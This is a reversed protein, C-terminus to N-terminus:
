VHVQGASQVSLMRVLLEPLIEVATFHSANPAVETIAGPINDALWYTHQVPSFTDDFGHWLLVKCRISGVDFGWGAPDRFARVDDFWGHSFKAMGLGLMAQLDSLQPMMGDVIHEISRTGYARALRRLAGDKRAQAFATRYTNLLLLRIGRDDVIRRDTPLLGDSIVPLMQSPDKLGNASRVRLMRKLDKPANAMLEYVEVNGPTMGKYWWEDDVANFPALGVLSAVVTVRKPLLAACALAHPGGGSRGVVAFSKIGLEDAITEVDEAAAAIKRGADRSSAGYGPRDYSILRVGLRHLKSPRPVPGLRSGPTGHLLFVAEGRLDGWEEIALVRRRDRSRIRRVVASRGVTFNQPHRPLRPYTCGVYWVRAWDAEPVFVVVRLSYRGDAELAGGGTSDPASSDAM